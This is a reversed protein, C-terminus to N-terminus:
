PRHPVAIWSPQVPIKSATTLKLEAYYNSVSVVEAMALSDLAKAELARSPLINKDTLVMQAGLRLGSAAGGAIRVTDPRISLVDFQPVLCVLELEMGQLFVALASQIQAMVAPALPKSSTAVQSPQDISIKQEASYVVRAQSRSLLAWRVEYASTRPLFSATSPTISLKLQWPIHNEGQGLLAKQYGDLTPQKDTLRWLSATKSKEFAQQKFQMAIQQAEFQNVVPMQASYEVQWSLHHWASNAAPKCTQVPLPKSDFSLEDMERGYSLVRIGRVEMGTVFSSAERLVGSGDIFAATKVETPGQMSRQVLSQRIAELREEASPPQAALMAQPLSLGLTSLGSLFIARLCM